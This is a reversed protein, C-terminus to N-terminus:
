EIEELLEILKKIDNYEVEIETNLIDIGYEKEMFEIDAINEKIYEKIKNLVEKQKNNEDELMKILRQTLIQDKEKLHMECFDKAINHINNDFIELEKEEFMPITTTLKIGDKIEETKINGISTEYINTDYGYIKSM